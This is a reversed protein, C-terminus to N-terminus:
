RVDTVRKRLHSLCNPCCWGDPDIDRWGEVRAEQEARRMTGGQTYRESSCNFCEVIYMVEKHMQGAYSPAEPEHEGWSM